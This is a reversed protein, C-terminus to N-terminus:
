GLVLPFYSHSCTVPAMEINEIRVMLEVFHSRRKSVAASDYLHALFFHPLRLLNSVIEAAMQCCNDKGM